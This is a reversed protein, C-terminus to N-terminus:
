VKTVNPYGRAWVKAILLLSVFSLKKFSMQWLPCGPINRCLPRRLTVTGWLPFIKSALSKEWLSSLKKPEEGFVM